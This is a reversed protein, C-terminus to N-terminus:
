FSYSIKVMFNREAQPYIGKEVYDAAGNKFKATYIWGYSYYKNNLLNDICLSLTIHSNDKLNFKHSANFSTTFYAPVKAAESSSNDMYQDGVYKGNVSINTEKLSKTMKAFPSVTIIAMATVEPSLTLHSTKYFVETQEVPNWDYDNDYTDIWNTYNKLKNRSLTVNAGVNVYSAIQWNAALEVGRRYSNPINEKIVHGTESLRGTSVLQDKYEMFYLNATLNFRPSNYKYGIEYDILREAM